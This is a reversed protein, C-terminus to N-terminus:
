RGRVTRLFIQWSSSALETGALMMRSAIHIEGCVRGFYFLFSHLSSLQGGRSLQGHSHRFPQPIYKGSSGLVAGRLPMHLFGIVETKRMLLPIVSLLSQM